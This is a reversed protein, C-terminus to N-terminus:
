HLFKLVLRQILYRSVPTFLFEIELELKDKLTKFCLSSSNKDTCDVLKKYIKLNNIQFNPNHSLSKFQGKYTQLCFSVLSIISIILLYPNVSFLFSNRYNKKFNLSIM